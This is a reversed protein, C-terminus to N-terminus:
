PGTATAQGGGAPAVFTWLSYTHEGRKDSFRTEEPHIGRSALWALFTERPLPYTTHAPANAIFVQQETTEFRALEDPARAPDMLGWYAVRLDLRGAASLTLANEFGWDLLVIRARPYRDELTSLLAGYAEASWHGRGGVRDVIDRYAIGLLVNGAVLFAFFLAPVVLLARAPRRPAAAALAVLLGLSCGVVIHPFPYMLLIHHPGTAIPIASLALLLVCGSVAFLALVRRRGPAARSFILFLYVPALYALARPMRSQGLRAATAAMGDGVMWDSMYTGRLMGRLERSRVLINKPVDVFGFPTGRGTALSRAVRLPEGGSAITFLIPPLAGIVFFLIALAPGAMGARALRRGYLILGALSLAAVCAAFDLKHSLGLGLMLGTLAPALRSAPRRTWLLFAALAGMQAMLSFAVPGWDCRTALVYNVDTALLLASMFAPVRGLERRLAFYLFVVGGFGLLATTARLVPVSIGFLLFAPILVYTKAPGTYSGRMSPWTRGFARFQLSPGDIEARGVAFKVAHGAGWAEDEYLGPQRLDRFGLIGFAVFLLLLCAADTWLARPSM